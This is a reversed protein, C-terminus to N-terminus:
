AASRDVVALQSGEIKQLYTIMEFFNRLKPNGTPGLMRMLTKSSHGLAEGLQVFGITGNIYKRLLSKGTEVDGDIMCSLAEGLLARRFSKSEGLRKEVTEAFSKTMQM